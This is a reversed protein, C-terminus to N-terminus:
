GLSFGVFAVISAALLAVVLGIVANLITNQAAKANDPSGQSTMYQFGGFIIFGLAVLGAVRILIDVIALTVLIIGDGNFKGNDMLTFKVECKGSLQSLEEDKPLYKYWTPLSFFTAEPCKPAAAFQASFGFVSSFLMAFGIFFGAM